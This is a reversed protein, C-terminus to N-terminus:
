TFFKKAFTLRDEEGLSLFCHGFLAQTWNEPYTASAVMKCVVAKDLTDVVPLELPYREKCNVAFLEAGYYLKKVGTFRFYLTGTEWVRIPFKSEGVLYWGNQYHYYPFSPTEHSTIWDMDDESQSELAQLLETAEEGQKYLTAEEAESIAIAIADAM